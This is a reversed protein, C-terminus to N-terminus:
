LMQFCNKLEWTKSQRDDKVDNQLSVHRDLTTVTNARYLQLYNEFKGWEQWESYM